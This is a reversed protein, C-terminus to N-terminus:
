KSPAPRRAFVGLRDGATHGSLDVLIDIGDRRITDAVEDDTRGAIEVWGDVSSRLQWSAPDASMGNFYCTFEFKRHDHAHSPSRHFVRGPRKSTLAM